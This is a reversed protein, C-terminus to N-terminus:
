QSYNVLTHYRENCTDPCLTPNSPCTKCYYSSRKRKQPTSCVVCQRQHERQALFHPKRNLRAPNVVTSNESHHRIFPRGRVRQPADQLHIQALREIIAKRFQLHTTSTTTCKFVIYSNVTAVELLWFCIKKWWKRSRRIFSYYTTYQDALDVGNMCQNYNDIVTPKNATKGSARSTVSTISANDKTSIMIIEKKKTPARWALSLLHGSRYARVEDDSLRFRKDRFAEPIQRRNKMCTGTFATQHAELVQALPISTYYRDTFVTRGQELYDNCLTLVIRAPQPLSAYQPDSHDLTDAGTYLLTDLIYGSKSDAITFAKIGYKNPKNPIYQKAGFRGRFGVMTEDVSLNASPNMNGKFNKVLADLLLQVKHLRKPRQGNPTSSVHLMWLIMEFRNKSFLQGFFPIQSIWSTSWYSGIDPATIIGMNLIVALFGHMEPLTVPSWKKLRSKEKLLHQQNYQSIKEDM